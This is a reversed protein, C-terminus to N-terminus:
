KISQAEKNVQQFCHPNDHSNPVCQAWASFVYVWVLLVLKGQEFVEGTVLM